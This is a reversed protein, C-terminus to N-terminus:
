QLHIVHGALQVYNFDINTEESQDGIKNECNLLKAVVFRCPFYNGASLCLDFNYANPNTFQLWLLPMVGSAFQFNNGFEVFLFDKSSPESSPENSVESDPESDSKNDIGLRLGQGGTMMPKLTAINTARVKPGAM